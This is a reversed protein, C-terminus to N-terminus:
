HSQSTLKTKQLKQESQKWTVPSHPWKGMTLIQSACSRCRTASNGPCLNPILQTTLTQFLSLYVTIIYYIITKCKYHELQDPNRRKPQAFVWDSKPMKRIKANQQIYVYLLHRFDASKQFRIDFLGIHRSGFM